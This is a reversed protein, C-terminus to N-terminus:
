VSLAKVLSRKSEGHRIMQRAADAVQTEDVVTDPERVAQPTYAVTAPSVPVASQEPVAPPAPLSPSVPAAAQEPVGPPAPRASSAPAAAALEPVAADAQGAPSAAPLEAPAKPEVPAVPSVPPGDVPLPPEAARKQRKAPKLDACAEMVEKVEKQDLGTAEMVRKQSPWKGGNEEMLQVLVDRFFAEARAAMEM